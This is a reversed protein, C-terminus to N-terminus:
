DQQWNEGHLGVCRRVRVAGLWDSLRIGDFLVKQWDSTLLLDGLFVDYLHQTDLRPSLWPLCIVSHLFSQSVQRTVLFHFVYMSTKCRRTARNSRRLISWMYLVKYKSICNNVRWQFCSYEISVASWMRAVM